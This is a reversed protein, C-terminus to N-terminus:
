EFGGAYLEDVHVVHAHLDGHEGEGTELTGVGDQPHLHGGCPLDRAEGGTLQLGMQLTEEGGAELYGGLVLGDEDGDAGEDGLNVTEGGDLLEVGHTV